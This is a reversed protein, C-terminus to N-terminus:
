CREKGVRDRVAIGALRSVGSDRCCRLRENLPLVRANQWRPGLDEANRAYTDLKLIAGDRFRFHLAGSFACRFADFDVM